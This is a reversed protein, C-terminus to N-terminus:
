AEAEVAQSLASAIEKDMSIIKGDKIALMSAIGKTLRVKESFNGRHLVYRAYEVLPKDLKLKLEYHEALSEAVVYHREM